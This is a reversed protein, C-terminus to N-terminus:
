SESSLEEEAPEGMASLFALVEEFTGDREAFRLPQVREVLVEHAGPATRLLQMSESVFEELPMAAPDNAQHAGTLSTRVYPPALEIVQVGTKSLQERLSVSYSHMAAKTASYTPNGSKPVFALGSTVNIITARAQELLRPLLAETLRIPGLLNTAITREAVETGGSLLDEAAMIGANNVLVNLDPFRETLERVAARISAQDTVDLEIINLGAHAEAADKLRELNRGAIVVENGLELFSTALSLGIGSGGGTILITNNTLKM